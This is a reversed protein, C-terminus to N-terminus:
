SATRAADGDSAKRLLFDLALTCALPTIGHDVGPIVGMEGHPLKRYAAVAEEVPLGGERDGVLILAPAAIKALDDTTYATPQIWLDFIQDFYTKVYGRGQTPEYDEVVKQMMGAPLSPAETSAKTAHPDGGLWARNMVRSASNPDPDFMDLGALNVIARPLEPAIIGVLTATIGGDSFGCILPKELRLAQALAIVDEAFDPFTLVASPNLTRGHGRTDPAIVRFHEALGGSTAEGASFAIRGSRATPSSEGTCCSSRSERAPRSMGSRSAMPRSTTSGDRSDSIGANGDERGKWDILASGIGTQRQDERTQRRTRQTKIEPRQSRRTQETTENQTPRPQAVVHLTLTSVTGDARAPPVALLPHWPIPAAVVYVTGDSRELKSTILGPFAGLAFILAVLPLLVLAEGLRLDVLATNATTAPNNKSRPSGGLAVAPALLAALPGRDPLPGESVGQFFRLM